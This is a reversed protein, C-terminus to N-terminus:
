SYSSNKCVAWGDGPLKNLCVEPHFDGLMQVEYKMEELWYFSDTLIFSAFAVKLVEAMLVHFEPGRIGIWYVQCGAM